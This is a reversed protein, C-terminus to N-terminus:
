SRESLRGIATMVRKESVPAPTGLSQAFLSVRLEEILWRVARVDESSRWAPPLKEIVGQYAQTVRHVAGMREADRDPDEPLKELRRAIARLYRPLDHLRRRGSATIFGPGTLAALQARIDALADRQATVDRDEAHGLAVEAQQAEGLVRAVTAVVDATSGPLAARAADLIKAFGDAEWAPGGADAIV